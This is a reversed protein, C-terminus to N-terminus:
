NKALADPYLQQLRLRVPEALTGPDNYIDRAESRLKNAQETWGLEPVHSGYRDLFEATKLRLSVPAALEDLVPNISNNNTSFASTRDTEGSLLKLRGLLRKEDKHDKGEKAFRQDAKSISEMYLAKAALTYDDPGKLGAKIEKLVDAAERANGKSADKHEKEEEKMEAELGKMKAPKFKAGHSSLHQELMLLDGMAQWDAANDIAHHHLFKEQFFRTAKTEVQLPDDAGFAGAILGAYTIYGAYNLVSGVSSSIASDSSTAASALLVPEAAMGRAAASFHSQRDLQLENLLPSINTHDNASGFSFHDFGHDSLASLKESGSNTYTETMKNGLCPYDASHCCIEWVWCM